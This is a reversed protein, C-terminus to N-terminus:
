VRERCSARGIKGNIFISKKGKLFKVLIEENESQSLTVAASFEKTQGTDYFDKDKLSNDCGGVFNGGLDTCAIEGDRVSRFSSAYACFYLAELFNTKGQGNEGILFIDKASTNVEADALNRFATTRLSSFLM